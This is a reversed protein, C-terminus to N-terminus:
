KYWNKMSETAPIIHEKPPVSIKEKGKSLGKDTALEQVPNPKIPEAPGKDARWLKHAKKIANLKAEYTQEKPAQYFVLIDDFNLSIDEDECAKAIASQEDRRILEKRTVFEDEPNKGFEDSEPKPEPESGPLVRGRGSNLRIVAKRFNEKETSDKRLRELESKSINVTDEKSEEEKEPPVTIQKDPQDNGPPTKDGPKLDKEEDAM